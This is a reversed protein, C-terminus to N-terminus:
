NVYVSSYRAQIHVPRPPQVFYDFLEYTVIRFWKDNIVTSVDDISQNEINNGITM